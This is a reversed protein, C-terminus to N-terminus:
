SGCPVLSLVRQVQSPGWTAGRRTTHGLENLRAAIGRLSLGDSRMEGIIETLDSYASVFNSRIAKSAAAQGMQRAEASLQPAGSRAAGLLVGRAKLAALAAKTRKSIERVENAAVAALIDITLENANPNDCAVFKVGSTKLMSCVVTSRLIRDLKACVLVANSRRAHAIAKRLEPRNSLDHRKGTETETYTAVLDCGTSLVHAAIAAQQGEIGLGSDGQKKTSVRLYGVLKCNM